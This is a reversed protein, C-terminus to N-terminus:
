TLGREILKQIVWSGLQALLIGMPCLTSALLSAHCLIAAQMTDVTESIDEDYHAAGLTNATESIVDKFSLKIEDQAPAEPNRRFITFDEKLWEQLDMLTHSPSAQFISAVDPAVLFTADGM